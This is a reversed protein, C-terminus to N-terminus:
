SAVLAFAIVSYAFVDLLVSTLTATATVTGWETRHSNQNAIGAALWLAATAIM